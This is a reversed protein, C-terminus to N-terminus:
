EPRLQVIGSRGDYDAKLRPVWAAFTKFRTQMAFHWDESVTIPEQGIALDVVERVMAVLIAEGTGRLMDAVKIEEIGDISLLVDRITRGPVTIGASADGITFFGDLLGQWEPPIYLVSPMHIRNNRQAEVMQEVQAKIQSPTALTWPVTYTVQARGPFTRYGYIVASGVRIAVGSFLMAESAEAVKRGALSAMTTDLRQGARQAALIRRADLRWDKHIIPVPVSAEGFAATDEEGATVGSMNINADTLDSVMQWMTVTAGLGGLDYTLGRSRLDAIGVLRQDMVQLVTTDIDLWAEHPLSANDVLRSDGAANTIVRADNGDLFPRMAYVDNMLNAAGTGGLQAVGPGGLGLSAMAAALTVTKQM